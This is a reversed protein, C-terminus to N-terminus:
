FIANVLGGGIASGAGFGVGGVASTALVQGLGGGFRSPKAPQSPPGAQQIVVPQLPQSPPGIYPNYPQPPQSQYGGQPPPGNYAPPYPAPPANNYPVPSSMSPARRAESPPPYSSPSTSAPVKEVYNSPFLGQNGNLKGTWWDANTEAVIEIIDGARFSLDNPESGNENYGWLAKARQVNPQPSTVVRRVPPGSPPGGPPPYDVSPQPLSPSPLTMRRTQESLDRLVVDNATPLKALIDQGASRPIESQAMLFEINQRTQSVIHAVLASSDPM